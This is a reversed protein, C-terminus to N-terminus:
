EVKTEMTVFKNKVKGIEISIAQAQEVAAISTGSVQPAEGFPEETELPKEM